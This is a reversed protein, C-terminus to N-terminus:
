ELSASAASSLAPQKIIVMRAGSRSNNTYQSKVYTRKGGSNALLTFSKTLEINKACTFYVETFWVKNNQEGFWWNFHHNKNYIGKAIAIFFTHKDNVNKQAKELLKEYREPKM